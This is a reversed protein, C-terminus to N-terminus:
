QGLDVNKHFFPTTFVLALFNGRLRTLAYIFQKFLYQEFGFQEVESGIRFLSSGTTNDFCREVLSASIHSRDHNLVTRKAHSIDEKGSRMVTADLGHEIIRALPNRFGPWRCWHEDQTEVACRLRTFFEVDHSSVALRTFDGGFASLYETLLGHPGLLVNRQVFDTAPKSNTVELLQVNDNLTVHVTRNFCQRVREEFQGSIFDLYVNDVA